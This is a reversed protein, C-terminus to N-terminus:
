LFSLFKLQVYMRDCAVEHLQTLSAINKDWTVHHHLPDIELLELDSLLSLSCRFTPLSTFLSEVLALIFSVM